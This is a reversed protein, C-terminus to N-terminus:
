KQPHNLSNASHVPQYFRLPSKFYEGILEVVLSSSVLARGFRGSVQAAGKLGCFRATERVCAATKALTELNVRGPVFILSM